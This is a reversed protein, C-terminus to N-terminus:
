RITIWPRLPAKGKEAREQNLTHLSMGCTLDYCDCCLGNHGYGDGRLGETWHTLTEADIDDNCHQCTNDM